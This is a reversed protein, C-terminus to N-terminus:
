LSTFPLSLHSWSLSALPCHLASPKLHRKLWPSPWSIRFGTLVCPGDKNCVATGSYHTVTVMDGQAMAWIVTVSGEEWNNPVDDRLHLERKNKEAGSSSQHVLTWVVIHNTLDKRNTLNFCFLGDINTTFKQASVDWSHEGNYFILSFHPAGSVRGQETYVSFAPKGAFSQVISDEM